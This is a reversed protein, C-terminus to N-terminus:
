YHNLTIPMELSLSIQQILLPNIAIPWKTLASVLDKAGPTAFAPMRPDPISGIILLQNNQYLYDVIPLAESIDLSSAKQSLYLGALGGSVNNYLDKYHEATNDRNKWWAVLENAVGLTQVSTYAGGLGYRSTYDQDKAREFTEMMSALAHKFVDGVVLPDYGQSVVYENALAAYYDNKQRAFSDISSAVSTIGTKDSVWSVIDQVINTV